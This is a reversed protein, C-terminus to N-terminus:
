KRTARIKKKRKVSEGLKTLKHSRRMNNEKGSISERWEVSEKPGFNLCREKPSPTFFDGGKASSM